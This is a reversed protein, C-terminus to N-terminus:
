RHEIIRPFNKADREIDPMKEFTETPTAYKSFQVIIADGRRECKLFQSICQKESTVYFKYFIGTETVTMLADKTQSFIVRSRGIM